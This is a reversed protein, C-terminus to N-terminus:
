TSWMRGKCSLESFFFPHSFFFSSVSSEGLPSLPSIPPHLMASGVTQQGWGGVRRAGEQRVRRGRGAIAGRYRRRLTRAEKGRARAGAAQRAWTATRRRRQSARHREPCWAGAGRIRGLERLNPGRPSSRGRVRMDRQGGVSVACARVCAHAWARVCARLPHISPRKAGQGGRGRQQPRRHAPLQDNSLRPVMALACWWWRRVSVLLGRSSVSCARVCARVCLGAHTWRLGSRVSRRRGRQSQCRARADPRRFGREAHRADHPLAAVLQHPPPTLAISQPPPPSQTPGPPHHEM